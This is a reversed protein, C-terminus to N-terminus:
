TSSSSTSSLDTHSWLELKEGSHYAEIQTRMCLCVHMARIYKIKEKFYFYSTSATPYINGKGVTTNTYCKLSQLARTVITGPIYGKAQSGCKFLFWERQLSCDWFAMSFRGIVRALWGDSLLDLLLLSLFPMPGIKRVKYFCDFWLSMQPCGHCCVWWSKRVQFTKPQHTSIVSLYDSSNGWSTNRSM